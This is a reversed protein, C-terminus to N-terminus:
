LVMFCCLSVLCDVSSQWPKVVPQAFGHCPTTQRDRISRAFSPWLKMLGVWMYTSGETLMYFWRTARLLPQFLLSCELLTLWCCCCSPGTFLTWLRRGGACSARPQLGVYEELVNSMRLLHLVMYAHPVQHEGRWQAPGIKSFAPSFRCIYAHMGGCCKVCNMMNQTHCPKSICARNGSSM